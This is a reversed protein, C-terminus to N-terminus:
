DIFLPTFLAGNLARLAIPGSTRLVDFHYQLMPIVPIYDRNTFWGSSINEMIDLLSCLSIMTQSPSSGPLNSSVFDAERTPASARNSNQIILECPIIALSGPFLTKDLKIGAVPLETLLGLLLIIKILHANDGLSKFFVTNSLLANRFKENEILETIPYNSSIKLGFYTAVKDELPCNLKSFIFNYRNYLQPVNSLLNAIQTVQRKLQTFNDPQSKGADIEVVIDNVVNKIWAVMDNITSQIVSCIMISADHNNKYTTLFNYDRLINKLSNNLLALDENNEFAPTKETDQEQLLYSELTPKDFYNIQQNMFDNYKKKFDDVMEPTIVKFSSFYENSIILFRLLFVLPFILDASSLAHEIDFILITQMPLLDLVTTTTPPYNKNYTKIFLFVDTMYCKLILKFQSGGDSHLAFDFDRIFGHSASLMNKAVSLYQSEASTTTCNSPLIKRYAAIYDFYFVPQPLVSKKLFVYAIFLMLLLWVLKLFSM